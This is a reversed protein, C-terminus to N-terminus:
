AKKSSKKGSPKSSQECKAPAEAAQLFLFFYLTILSTLFLCTANLKSCICFCHTSANADLWFITFHIVLSDNAVFSFTLSCQDWFFSSSSNYHANTFSSNYSYKHYFAYHSCRLIAYQHNFVCSRFESCVLIIHIIFIPRTCLRAGCCHRSSNIFRYLVIPRRTKELHSFIWIFAFYFWAMWDPNMHM